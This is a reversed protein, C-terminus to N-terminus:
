ICEYGTPVCGFCEEGGDAFGAVDDDGVFEVVGADNIRHAEGGGDFFADLFVDVFVGVHVGYLFDEFFGFVVGFHRALDPEDGVADEGHFAVDGAERFEAFEAVFVVGEEDDVVGVGVADHAFGSSAGVFVVVHAGTAQAELGLISGDIDEGAGEAFSESASGAAEDGAGLLEDVADDLAAARREKRVGERDGDGRAGVGRDAREHILGLADLLEAVDCLVAALLDRGVRIEIDEFGGGGDAGDNHALGGGGDGHGFLEEFVVDEDDAEAVGDDRFAFCSESDLHGGGMGFLM